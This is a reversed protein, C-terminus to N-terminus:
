APCKKSFNGWVAMLYYNIHRAAKEEMALGIWFCTCCFSFIYGTGIHLRLFVDTQAKASYVNLLAKKGKVM